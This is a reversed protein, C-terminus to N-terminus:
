SIGPLGASHLHHHLFATAIAIAFSLLEVSCIRHNAHWLLGHFFRCLSVIHLILMHSSWCLIFIDAAVWWRMIMPTMSWLHAASTKCHSKQLSLEFYAHETTFHEGIPQILIYPLRCTLSLVKTSNWHRTLVDEFHGESFTFTVFYHLLIAFMRSAYHNLGLVSVSIATPSIKRHRLRISLTAPHRKLLAIKRTKHCLKGGSNFRPLVYWVSHLYSNCLLIVPMRLVPIQIRFDQSIGQCLFPWVSVCM